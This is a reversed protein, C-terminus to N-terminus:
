GPQDDTLAPSPVPFPMLVLEDYAHTQYLLALFSAYASLTSSTYRGVM